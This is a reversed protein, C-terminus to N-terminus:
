ETETQASARGRAQEDSRTEDKNNMATKVPDAAVADSGGGTRGRGAKSPQM